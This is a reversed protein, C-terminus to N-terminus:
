EHTISENIDAKVRAVLSASVLFARQLHFSYTTAHSLSM